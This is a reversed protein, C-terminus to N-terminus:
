IFLAGPSTGPRIERINMYVEHFNLIRTSYYEQLNQFNAARRECFAAKLHLHISAACGFLAEAAAAFPTYIFFSLARLFGFIIM